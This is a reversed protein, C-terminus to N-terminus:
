VDPWVEALPEMVFPRERMRPHPLVLGPAHRRETGFILLDLDLTRPGWRVREALPPRGSRAELRQLEALLAEASLCTDLAAAANLYPGQPRGDPGLPGIAASTHLRSMRFGRIAPHAALAAAAAYLHGARNGLNSGMGIAARTFGTADPM